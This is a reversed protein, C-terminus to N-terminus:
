RRRCCRRRRAPPLTRVARLRFQAASCPAARHPRDTIQQRVEGAISPAVLSPPRQNCPRKRANRGSGRWRTMGSNPQSGRVSGWVISPAGKPAVSIASFVSTLNSGKQPWTSQARIGGRGLCNAAFLFLLPQAHWRLVGSRRYVSRVGPKGAPGGKVQSCVSLGRSRRIAPLLRVGDSQGRPVHCGTAHTQPSKEFRELACATLSASSSTTGSCFSPRGCRLQAPSAVQGVAFRHEGRRHAGRLHGFVCEDLKLRKAALPIPKSEGGGLWPLQGCLPVFPSLM